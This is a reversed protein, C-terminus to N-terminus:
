LIIIDCLGSLNQSYAPRSIYRDFRDPKSQCLV